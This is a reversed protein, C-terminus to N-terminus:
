LQYVCVNTLGTAVIFAYEEASILPRNSCLRYFNYKLGGRRENLDSVARHKQRESYCLRVWIIQFTLYNFSIQICTNLLVTSSCWAMFIHLHLFYLAVDRKLRNEFWHNREVGTGKCKWIFGFNVFNPSSLGWFLDRRSINRRPRCDFGCWVVCLSYRFV